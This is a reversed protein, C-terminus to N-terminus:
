PTKSLIVVLGDEEIAMTKGDHALSIEIDDHTPMHNPLYGILEIDLHNPDFNALVEDGKEVEGLTYYDAFDYSDSEGMGQCNEQVHATPTITFRNITQLDLDSTIQVKFSMSADPVGWDAPLNTCGTWVGTLASLIEKPHSDATLSQTPTAHATNFAFVALTAMVLRTPRFFLM